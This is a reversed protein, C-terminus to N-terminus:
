IKVPMIIATFDNEIIAAQIDPGNMSIKIEPGQVSNVADILFFSNFAIQIGTGAMNVPELPETIYPNVIKNNLLDITIKHFNKESTAHLKKIKNFFDTKNVTLITQFSKPIVHEYNPYKGDILDTIIEFNGQIIRARDRTFDITFDKKLISLPKIIWEPMIYTQSVNTNFKYQHLRRSDTATIGSKDILFGNLAPLINDASLAQTVAQFKSYNMNVNDTFIDDPYKPFEDTLDNASKILAKGIITYFGPEKNIDTIKYIMNFDTMFATNNIVKMFKCIKKTSKTFPKLLRILESDTQISNKSKVTRPSRPAETPRPGQKLEFLEKKLREIEALAAELTMSPNVPEPAAAPEPEQPETWPPVTEIPATKIETINPRTIKINEAKKLIDNINM